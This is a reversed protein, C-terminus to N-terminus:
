TLIGISLLRSYHSVNMPWTALSRQLDLRVAVGRSEDLPQQYYLSFAKAGSGSDATNGASV